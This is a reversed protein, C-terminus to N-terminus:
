KGLPVSKKKGQDYMMKVNVYFSPAPSVDSM